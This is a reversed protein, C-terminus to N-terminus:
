SLEKKFRDYSHKSEDILKLVRERVDSKLGSAEKEFIHKLETLDDVSKGLLKSVRYSLDDAKSKIKKRTAKGSDPAVLLGIAVGAAVGSLVGCLFKTASM